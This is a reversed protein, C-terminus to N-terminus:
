VITKWQSFDYNLILNTKSSFDFGNTKYDDPLKSDILRVPSSYYALAYQLWWGYKDLHRQINSDMYTNIPGVIINTDKSLNKTRPDSDPSIANQWANTLNYYIVKLSSPVYYTHLDNDTAVWVYERNYYQYREDWCTIQYSNSYPQDGFIYGFGYNYKVVSEDHWTYTNGIFPLRLYKLSSCGMLAGKKIELVTDPIIITTLNSCYSLGNQYLIKISTLEVEELSFPINMNSSADFLHYLASSIVDSTGPFPLKIKKIATLKSFVKVPLSTISDPVELSEILSSNNGKFADSDVSTVPLGNYVNPIIVNKQNGLYKTLKAASSNTEFIFTENTVIVEINTSVANNVTITITADGPAVGCFTREDLMKVISTNSSKSEITIINAEPVPYAIINITESTGVKITYSSPNAYIREVNNKISSTYQAIYVANSTVTTLSPSWGSFSYTYMEDSVRSPTQGNYSPMTGYTVSYDTELITGDWNKWTVTFTEINQRSSQTYNTAKSTQKTSEQNHISQEDYVDSEKSCSSLCVGLIM